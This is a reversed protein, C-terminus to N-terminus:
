GGAATALDFLPIFLSIAVTGVVLGLFVLIVPEILRSIMAVRHRNDEDYCDAIFSLADGLKGSQEGAAVAQVIATPVLQPDALAQAMSEGRSVNERARVLLERYSPFGTADTTLTIADILPVRAQVMLGLMRCMRALILMRVVSRVGPVVLLMRRFYAVGAGTRVYITVAILLVGVIVAAEIWHARVFSSINLLIVTTAPLDVRLTAFLGAFRPLVFGLLVGAVCMSIVCLVAPYTLAAKVRNRVELQQRALMALRAFMDPLTATAEGAAVISRFVADFLHPCQSMAASLSSGQEVDERVSPLADQWIPARMETELAVLAPVIGTGAGLLMSMQRTFQVVDRQSAKRQFFAVKPAAARRETVEEAPEITTIFLGRRRLQEIADGRSPAELVAAQMEGRGDLAQYRLKM